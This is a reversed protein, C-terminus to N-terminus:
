NQCLSEPGVEIVKGGLDACGAEFASWADMGQDLRQSVAANLANVPVTHSPSEGHSQLEQKDQILGISTEVEQRLPAAQSQWWPHDLRNLTALAEWWRQQNILEQLREHDIRNRNWTGRLSESLSIDPNNGSQDIPALMALSRELEGAKFLALAQNRLQDRWNLLLLRDEARQPNESISSNVLQELHGLAIQYDNQEWALEAQHRRCLAEEPLSKQGLLHLANLQNSYRLCANLDGQQWALRVLSPLQQEWLYAFGFTTAVVTLASM